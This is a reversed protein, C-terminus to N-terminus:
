KRIQLGYRRVLEGLVKEAIYQAGQREDDDSDKAGDMASLASSLREVLQVRTNTPIHRTGQYKWDDKARRYNRQIEARTLAREGVPKRGRRSQKPSEGLQTSEPASM